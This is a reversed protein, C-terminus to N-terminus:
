FEILVMCCECCLVIHIDGIVLLLSLQTLLVFYCLLFLLDLLFTERLKGDYRCGQEERKKGSHLPLM